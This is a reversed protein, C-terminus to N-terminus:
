IALAGSATGALVELIDTFNENGSTTGTGYAPTTTPVAIVLEKKAVNSQFNTHTNSHSFTILDYGGGGVSSSALRLASSDFLNPEGMEYQEGRFGMLFNEMEAVQEYTGTGESASTSNGVVTSGFESSPQVQFRLKSYRKKSVNWPLPQGTLVIGWNAAQGTANPIVEIDSTGGADDYTGSAEIVERDLTVTVGNIAVVKYVSSTLATGGGVSGIRLYDGVVLTSGGGSTYTVDTEFLVQNVGKTVTVEQGSKTGNAATVAANCIAKTVIPPNGASNKVERSMNKQLSAAIGLAVEAQGDTSLSKYVSNKIREDDSGSMLQQLIVKVKYLDGAYTAVDAIFGSTGNYGIYTSQETAAAYTKALISTISSKVIVDSVLAPASTGRSVAVVFKDATAATAATLQVGQPSFIKIEGANADANFVASNLTQAAASISGSSPTGGVLIQRVKNIASPASM